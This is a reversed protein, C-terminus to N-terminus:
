IRVRYRVPHNLDRDAFEENLAHAMLDHDEDSPQATGDLWGRVDALTGNGGIAFYGIWLDRVTMGLQSLAAGLDPVAAAGGSM